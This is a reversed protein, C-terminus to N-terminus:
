TSQWTRAANKLDDRELCRSAEALHDAPSEVEPGTVVETAVPRSMAQPIAEPATPRPMAQPVAEPVPQMPEDVSSTNLPSAQCGFVGTLILFAAFRSTM